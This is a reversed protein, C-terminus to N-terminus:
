TGYSLYWVISLAQNAWTPAPIIKVVIIFTKFGEDIIKTLANIFLYYLKKKFLLIIAHYLALFALVWFSYIFAQIGVWKLNILLIGNMNDTIKTQIVREVPNGRKSGTQENHKKIINRTSFFIKM